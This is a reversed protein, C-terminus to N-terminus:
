RKKAICPPVHDGALFSCKQQQADLTLWSLGALISLQYFAQNTAQFMQIIKGYIPFTM